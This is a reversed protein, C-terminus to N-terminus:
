SRMLESTVALLADLHIPKRLVHRLGLDKLERPLFRSATIVLVPIDSLAALSKQLARFELGDMSPMWLDLIILGPRGGRDGLISLAERGNAACKVEYGEDSLVEAITRRISFDDDVVLIPASSASPRPRPGEAHPEVTPM